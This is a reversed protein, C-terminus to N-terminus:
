RWPNQRRARIPRVGPPHRASLERPPPVPRLPLVAPARQSHTTPTSRSRFWAAASPRRTPSRRRIEIAPKSSHRSARPPSEAARQSQVGLMPASKSPPLGERPSIAGLTASPLPTAALRPGSSAPPLVAVQPVRVRYSATLRSSRALLRSTRAMLPRLPLDPLSAPVALTRIQPSRDGPWVVPLGGRFPRCLRCPDASAM